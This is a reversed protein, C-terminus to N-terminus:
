ENTTTPVENSIVKEADKQDQFSEFNSYDYKM